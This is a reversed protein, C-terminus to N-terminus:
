AIVCKRLYCCYLVNQMFTVYGVQEETILEVPASFVRSGHGDALPSIKNSRLLKQKPPLSSRAKKTQHKINEDCRNLDPCFDSIWFMRM